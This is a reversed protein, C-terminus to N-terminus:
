AYMKILEDSVASPTLVGLDTFLLTLYSPPTYDLQPRLIQLDPYSQKLNVISDDELQLNVPPENDTIEKQNLPYVKRTFKYSQAAAYVPKRFAKAVISIQYTGIENLVGGNEVVHNAGVLVLDMDSMLYAVAIDAIITVPIKRSILIEATKCKHVKSEIVYVSFRKGQEEAALLLAVVVTSYGHTL